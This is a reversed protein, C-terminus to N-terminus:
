FIDVSVNWQYVWIYHVDHVIDPHLPVIGITELIYRYVCKMSIGMHLYHVTDPDLPITGMTELIYRCVCETRISKHLLYWSCHWPLPACDLNDFVCKQCPVFFVFYVRITFDYSIKKEYM